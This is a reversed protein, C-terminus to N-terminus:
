GQPKQTKRYLSYGTDQPLVGLIPLMAVLLCYLVCRSILGIKGTYSIRSFLGSVRLSPLPKSCIETFGHQQVLDRLNTADFYHVHPSPLDKQWLREFPYQIGLFSLSKSFRYFTGTSNPLNILLIGDENLHTNCSDLILRANPIHEFVDNFVIVDFREDPLLASPFFGLRVPVGNVRAFEFMSEDPEVGLVSFSKSALELFWGHASGVDLLKPHPILVNANIATILTQFNSRRLDFLAQSREVEDIKAVTLSNIAPTFKSREYRCKPCYLHWTAKGIKLTEACVTCNDEDNIMM